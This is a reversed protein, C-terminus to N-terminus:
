SNFLYVGEDIALGRVDIQSMDATGLGMGEALMLHNEGKDFPLTGRKARPDPYGMLKLGVADTSVPNLGAVMVGPSVPKLNKNWYGEGGSMSTIGDVIALHIPRAACLDAVARPIVIGAEQSIDGIMGPLSIKKGFRGGGHMSGRARVADENGADSGYISCPTIGFMNKMSLTIGAIAHNKMKALSVLVDTDEYSHNLQFSSYLLGNPVKVESYKKGKGLNRTNEFEVNGLDLIPKVDWGVMGSVEELTKRYYACEVIRVRKAGEELLISSLAFATSGHTLYTEGPPLNFLTKYPNGTFNVKITVTKGKVLPGIGGILDLCQKMSTKVERGYGRCRAIGVKANSLHEQSIPQRVQKEETQPIPSAWSLGSAGGVALGVGIRLFARRDCNPIDKKM